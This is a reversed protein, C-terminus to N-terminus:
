IQKLSKKVIEEVTLEPEKKLIGRIVKEVPTKAFGLMLMASVAEEYVPPKDDTTFNIVGASKVVSVKDKLEVIIKQATKIGLGKVEKLIEAKGTSIITRLEEANFTSLITRATNGGVGSVGILLRFLEREETTSFGFLIQADERVIFHTYLLAEEKDKISTFTQLSINLYFGIGGSTAIVAHAPSKDTFTGKIFEYM